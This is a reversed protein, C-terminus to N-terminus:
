LPQMGIEGGQITLQPKIDNCDIYTGAEHGYYNVKAFSGKVAETLVM